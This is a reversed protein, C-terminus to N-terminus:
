KHYGSGRKIETARYLQEVLFLRCQRSSMFTKRCAFVFPFMVYVCLSFYTESRFYQLDAITHLLYELFSLLPHKWPALCLFHSCVMKHTLTLPGLSLLDLKPKGAPNLAHMVLEAPLGEADGIVFTLRSGGLELKRFVIEAFHESSKPSEGRGDLCVVSAGSKASALVSGVAADPKVWRVDVSLSHRMRRVYETIADDFVADKSSHRGVNLVTVGLKARWRQSHASLRRVAQSNCFKAGCNWSVSPITPINVFTHM